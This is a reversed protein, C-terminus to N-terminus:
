ESILRGGQDHGLGLHGPRHGQRRQRVVLLGPDRRDSPGGSPVCRHAGHAIAVLRGPQDRYPILKGGTIILRRSVRVAPAGQVRSVGPLRHHRRIDDLQSGCDQKRMMRSTAGLNSPPLDDAFGQRIIQGNRDIVMFRRPSDPHGDRWALRDFVLDAMAPPIPFRTSMVRLFLVDWGTELLYRLRPGRVRLMWETSKATLDIGTTGTAVPISYPGAAKLTTVRRGSRQLIQALDRNAPPLSGPRPNERGIAAALRREIPVPIGRTSARAAATMEMRQERTRATSALKAAASRGRLPVDRMELWTRVVGESIHVGLEATLDVALEAIGAGATYRADTDTGDLQRARQVILETRARLPVDLSILRHRLKKRSMGAAAAIVGVAEGHLYRTKLEADDVTRM